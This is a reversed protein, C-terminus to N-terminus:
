EKMFLYVGGGQKLTMQKKPPAFEMVVGAPDFKFTDKATPELTFPPQGTAQAILANKDKTVTIKLPIQSSSYAGTYQDLAEAPVEITKFNPLNYLQNFYISLLGILIDNIPYAQGNTCYAIAIKEDPFYGLTSAFGDIGGNHGYAKKQGFPFQFMGMGMGDTMNMMQKLSSEKVLKHAFLAEIFKTLDTPTSVIAGAGHPISMDTEPEIQWDDMQWKYSRSENKQLNAKDGYYTNRLKLKTTIRETLAQKYSKKTLKQIILGLLVFNSNSYATKTGPAFEPEPTAIISVLEKESLPYMMYTPYEPDSTFNFIGSQHKLLHEITINKANPIKRYFKSLPTNLTLKKEEILQMIMVATFMKTISGIRYKTNTNAPVKKGNKTGSFGIARSYLVKGEKSIAVSGMAKNTQALLDILSDLKAINLDQSKASISVIILMWLVVVFRLKRM